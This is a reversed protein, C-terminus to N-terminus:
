LGELKLEAVEIFESIESNNEIIQKDLKEAVLLIDKFREKKYCHDFGAKLAEKRCTKIKKRKTNQSEFLLSEFEKLLAKERKEAVPVKEKETKPRRYKGEELIFNENLINELEPMDDDISTAVKNFGTLIESYNKPIDLFTNLWIIASKEDSVFFIMNKSFGDEIDKLKTEKKYEQYEGFQDPNFWFGDAEIFNEHLMKFFSSSNYKISYGRLVYYSLMKSYLMQETREVSPEINLQSLHMKIFEKELDHGANELFRKTFEENPKYASIVLDKSVAMSTTVQKFSGQKKDLVSVNSVVFGAKLLSEQIANWINSKSNHFEVTIWRKPKLIRFCEKFSKYMLESYESLGKSQSKNIVAETGNNTFVKLWSEWLFNLESYMLNSGFPPDTFIYDMTNNPINLNTCTNTQVVQNKSIYELAKLFLSLKMTKLATLINKEIPMSSFYLTGSQYGTLVPKKYSKKFIIRSM